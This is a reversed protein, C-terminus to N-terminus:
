RLSTLLAASSVAQLKGNQNGLGAFDYSIQQQHERASARGVGRGPRDHGDTGQSM